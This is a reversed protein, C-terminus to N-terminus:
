KLEFLVVRPAGDVATQRERDAAPIYRMTGPRVVFEETSDNAHLARIRGAALYVVVVGGAGGGLVDQKLSAIDWVRVRSDDLAVRAGDHTPVNEALVSSPSDHKLEIFVARLPVATNGMEVHTTGKRTTSLSGVETVAQRANGDSTTITRGGRQYYTGVQDYVHRHLATPQQNPWAIDWVVIRDTELLRTANQRPFPPPLDSQAQSPASLLSVVLTVEFFRRVAASM